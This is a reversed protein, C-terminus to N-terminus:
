DEGRTLLPSMYGDHYKTRWCERGFFAGVALTPVGVLAIIVVVAVAIPSSM